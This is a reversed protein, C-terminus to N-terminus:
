CVFNNAPELRWGKFWRIHKGSFRCTRSLCYLEIEDLENGGMGTDKYEKMIKGNNREPIRRSAKNRKDVPYKLHEFKINENAWGILRNMAELGYGNHHSSKKIWIGLEPDTKDINHLGICGIFENNEKNVIVLQFNTGKKLEDLSKKIFEKTEEISEAPKPMMYETIEQTFEKFIYEAYEYSIPKLLLRETEIIKNLLDM